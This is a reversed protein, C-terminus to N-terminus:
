DSLSTRLRYTQDNGREILRDDILSALCASAQTPDPCKAMLEDHAIAHPADRLAAMLLGRVHRNTGIFPKTPRRVVESAPFGRQRWACKDAIPCVSCDPSSATCVLAGLEMVAVSWRAARPGDNPTIAGAARREAATLANGPQAQGALARALVRRVNTDLVISRQDYAFAVVAAATYEGVGPLLRLTAEDDPVEGFHEKAIVRAAQQLRLARRPYGLRGWRRLVEDTPAAALDSPTPWREMWDIWIPTVRAVQTQQLMVESVLVAWPTREASRWPLDRKNKEFWTLVAEVLDPTPADHEQNSADSKM